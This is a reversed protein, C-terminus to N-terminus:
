NNHPQSRWIYEIERGTVHTVSKREIRCRKLHEEKEKPSLRNWWRISLERDTLEM